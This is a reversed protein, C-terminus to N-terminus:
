RGKAFSRFIRIGITLALGIAMIGLASPLATTIISVVDTQVAQFATNLASTMGATVNGTAENAFVPIVSALTSGGIIAGTAIKKGLESNVNEKINTLANM